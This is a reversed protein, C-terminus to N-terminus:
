RSFYYGDGCLMLFVVIVAYLIVRLKNIDKM